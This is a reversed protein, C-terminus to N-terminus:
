LWFPLHSFISEVAMLDKIAPDMIAIIYNM